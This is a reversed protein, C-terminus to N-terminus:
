ADETQPTRQTKREEDRHVKAEDKKLTRQKEKEADQAPYFHTERTKRREGNAVSPLLVFRKTKEVVRKLYIFSTSAGLTRDVNAVSEVNVFVVGLAM